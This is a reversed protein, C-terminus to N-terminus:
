CATRFCRWGRMLIKRNLRWSTPRPARSLPEPRLQRAPAPPRGLWVLGALLLVELLVAILIFPGFHAALTAVPLWWWCILGFAIAALLLGGCLM